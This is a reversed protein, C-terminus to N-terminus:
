SENLRRAVELSASLAHRAQPWTRGGLGCTPTVVVDRLRARDLGTRSWLSTLVNEGVGATDALRDDVGLNTSVVGAYLQVGSEIQQAIAAQVLELPDEGVATASAPRPLRLLDLSIAGFGAARSVEYPFDGCSHLVHLGAGSGEVVRLLAAAAVGIPVPEYRGFGSATRIRGRLVGAISPEDIQLIVSRNPLRRGLEAVLDGAAGALAATLEAVLGEDALALNTGATEIAAALTWPGALQVKLRGESGGYQEEALDLDETVWSQAVRMTRTRSGTLRWGTPIPEVSLDPALASMLGMTRGVIDGGPGRGPLEPLFPLDPLEGAVVENAESASVGPMSGVGTAVAVANGALM